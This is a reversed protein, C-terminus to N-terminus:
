DRRRCRRLGAGRSWAPTRRATGGPPPAPGARRPSGTGATGRRSPFAVRLHGLTGVDLADEDDAGARDDDPLGALEVVGAGLRALRQAGLPELDDEDVAVRRRDHGVRLDGIAGVDLRQRRFHERLDDLLLTGVRHQRGDAALGREVERHREALVARELLVADLQDARRDLRDLDGLIAQQEAVRHLSIPASTGSLRRRAPRHLLRDGRDVLM